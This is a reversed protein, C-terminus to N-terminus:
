QKPRFLLNLGSIMGYIVLIIVFIGGMGKLMVSLTTMFNPTDIHLNM